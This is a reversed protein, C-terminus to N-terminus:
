VCSSVRKVLVSAYSGHSNGRPSSTAAHWSVRVGSHTSLEVPHFGFCRRGVGPSLSSFIAASSAARRPPITAVCTASTCPVDCM